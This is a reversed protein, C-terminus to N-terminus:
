GEGGSDAEPVPKEDHLGALGRVMEDNDAWRKVGDGDIYWHRFQMTRVDFCLGFGRLSSM